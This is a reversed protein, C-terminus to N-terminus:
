GEQGEDYVENISSHFRIFSLLAQYQSQYNTCKSWGFGVDKIQEMGALFTAQLYTNCELWGKSDLSYALMCESDLPEDVLGDYLLYLGYAPADKLQVLLCFEPVRSDQTCDGLIVKIEQSEASMQCGWVKNEIVDGSEDEFLLHENLLYEKSMLSKSKDQNIFKSPIVGLNSFVHRVIEERLIPNM